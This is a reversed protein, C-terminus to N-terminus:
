PMKLDTGPKIMNPNSGIAGKNAAYLKQWTTGNAAAIKSLNDGAKVTVTRPEPAAPKDPTAPKTAATAPKTATTAPKPKAATAPAAAPAAPEVPETPAAAAPQYVPQYIPQPQYPAPALSQPGLNAPLPSGYNVPLTGANAGYSNSYIIPLNQQPEPSWSGGVSMGTMGGNGYTATTPVIVPAPTGGWGGGIMGM